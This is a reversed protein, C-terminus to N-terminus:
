PDHIEDPACYVRWFLYQEGDFFDAGRYQSDVCTKEAWRGTDLDEVRVYVSKLSSEDGMWEPLGHENPEGFFVVDEAYFYTEGPWPNAYAWRGGFREFKRPHPDPSDPFAITVLIRKYAPHFEAGYNLIASTYFSLLVLKKSSFPPASPCVRPKHPLCTDLRESVAFYYPDTDPSTIDTGMDEKLNDLGIEVPEALPWATPDVLEGSSCGVFFSIVIILFIKM